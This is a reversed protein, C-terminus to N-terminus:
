NGERLSKLMKSTAETAEEKTRFVLNYQLMVRGYKTNNWTRVNYYQGEDIFDLYPVYYTDGVKPKWKPRLSGTFIKEWEGYGSGICFGDDNYKFIKGTKSITYAKGDNGIWKEGVKVGLEKCLKEVLIM